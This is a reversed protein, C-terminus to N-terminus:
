ERLGLAELAQERGAYERGDVIKGDRVTYVVAYRLGTEAGSIKARGSLHQIAIVRDDGVERLEELGITLDDFMDIWDQVYRRLAEPGHM